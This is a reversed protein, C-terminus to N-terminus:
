ADNLISSWESFYKNFLNNNCYNIVTCTDTPDELLNEIIPDLLKKLKNYSNFKKIVANKAALPLNKLQYGECGYLHQGYMNLGFERICWDFFEPLYYVNLGSITYTCSTKFGLQKSNKIHEQITQFKAPPRLFEFRQNIDDVSFMMEVHKCNCFETVKDPWVTGNTNIKISIDENRGIFSLVEWPYENLLPEGGHFELYNINSIDIGNFVQAISPMLKKNFKYNPHISINKKIKQTAWASSRSENCILCTSNCLTGYRLGISQIGLNLDTRTHIINSAIRRSKLHHLENKKCFTCGPAWNNNKLSNKIDTFDNTLYVGDYVNCPKYRVTENEVIIDVHVFPDACWSTIAM